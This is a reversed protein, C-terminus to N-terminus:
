DGIMGSRKTKKKNISRNVVHARALSLMDNLAGIVLEVEDVEITTLEGDSGRIFITDPSHSAFHLSTRVKSGGVEILFEYSM